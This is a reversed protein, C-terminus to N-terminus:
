ITASLLRRTYINDELSLIYDARYGFDINLGFRKAFMKTGEICNGAKLSHKLGIFRQKLIEPNAKVKRDFIIKKAQEKRWNIAEQKDTTHFGSTVYGKTVTTGFTNKKGCQTVYYCEKVKDSGKKVFTDLSGVLVYEMEAIEKAISIDFNISVYGHTPKYKCTKAYYERSDYESVTLFKGKGIINLYRESGMSHGTSYRVSGIDIKELNSIIAKLLKFSIRNARAFKKQQEIIARARNNLVELEYVEKLKEIPFGKAYDSKLPKKYNAILEKAITVLEPKTIKSNKM